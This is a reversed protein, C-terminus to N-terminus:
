NLSFRAFHRISLGVGQDEAMVVQGNPFSSLDALVSNLDEGYSKPLAGAASVSVMSVMLYVGQRQLALFQHVRLSGEPALMTKQEVEPLPQSKTKQSSRLITLFKGLLKLQNM